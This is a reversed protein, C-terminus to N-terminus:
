GCALLHKLVDLTHIRSAYRDAARQLADAAVIAFEARRASLM